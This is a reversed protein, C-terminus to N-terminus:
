NQENPYANSINESVIRYIEAYDDPLRSIHDAIIETDHRRAPGTQVADPRSSLANNLTMRLLPELLTLDFGRSRLIDDSIAWMRNAFNCAFVAALHFLKRDTSDAYRVNASVQEALNFLRKVTAPTDGEILMPVKAFEVETLRNFTQLPYFVGYNRCKGKFVDAPVSGSTHAWVADEGTAPINDAIESIADDKVAVIYFDADLRIQSLESVAECDNLTSALRRAHEPTPSFIQIVHAARNLAAAMHTAVNGSGLIVIKINKEPKVM